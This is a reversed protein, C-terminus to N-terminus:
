NIFQNLCFNTILNQRIILQLSTIVAYAAHGVGSRLCMTFVIMYYFALFTYWLGDGTLFINKGKIEIFKNVQIYIIPSTTPASIMNLITVYNVSQELVHNVCKHYLLPM